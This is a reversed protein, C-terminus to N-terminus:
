KMEKEDSPLPSRGRNELWLGPNATALPRDRRGAEEDSSDDDSNLYFPPSVSTLSGGGAQDRWTVRKGVWDLDLHKGINYPVYYSDSDFKFGQKGKEKEANSLVPRILDMIKKHTRATKVGRAIEPAYSCGLNETMLKYVKSGRKSAQELYAHALELRKEPPTHESNFVEQFLTKFRARKDHASGGEINVKILLTSLFRESDLAGDSDKSKKYTAELYALDPPDMLLSRVVEKDKGSIRFSPLLQWAGLPFEEQHEEPLRETPLYKLEYSVQAEFSVSQPDEGGSPTSLLQSFTQFVVLKIDPYSSFDRKFIYCSSNGVAEAPFMFGQGPLCLNIFGLPAQSMCSLAGRIMKATRQDRVRYLNEEVLRDVKDQDESADPVYFGVPEASYARQIKWRNDGRSVETEYFPPNGSSSPAPPKVLMLPGAATALTRTISEKAERFVDNESESVDVIITAGAAM